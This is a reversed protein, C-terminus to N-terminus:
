AKKSCANRPESAAMLSRIDDNRLTMGSFRLEGTRSVPQPRPSHSSTGRSAPTGPRPVSPFLTETRSHPLLTKINEVTFKRSHEPLESVPACRPDGHELNGFVKGKANEDGCEILTSADDRIASEDDHLDGINLIESDSSRREPDIWGVGAWKMGSDEIEEELV